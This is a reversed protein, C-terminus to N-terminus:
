INIARSTPTYTVPNGSNLAPVAPCSGAVAQVIVQPNSVSQATQFCPPCYTAGASAPALTTSFTGYFPDNWQLTASNSAPNIANTETWTAYGSM